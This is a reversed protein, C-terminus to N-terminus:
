VLCPYTRVRSDHLHILVGAGGVLTHAGSGDVATCVVTQMERTDMVDTHRGRQSSHDVRHVHVSKDDRFKLTGMM